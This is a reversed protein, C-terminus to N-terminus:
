LDQYINDFFTEWSNNYDFPVYIRYIPYEEMDWTIVKLKVEKIKDNLLSLRGQTMNQWGLRPMLIGRIYEDINREFVSPALETHCPDINYVLFKLNFFKSSNEVYTGNSGHLYPSNDYFDQKNKQIRSTMRLIPYEYKIELIKAKSYWSKRNMIM